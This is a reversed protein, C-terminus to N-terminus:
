RYASKFEDKPWRIHYESDFLEKLISLKQWRAAVTLVSEEENIGVKSKIM